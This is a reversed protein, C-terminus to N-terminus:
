RRKWAGKAGAALRLVALHRMAANSVPTVASQESFSGLGVQNSDTEVFVATSSDVMYSILNFSSSTVQGRGSNSSDAAYSASFRKDGNLSGQDNYDVLGTFTGSNNTFEAIDDEEFGSANSGTLNLGYGQGSALAPAPTSQPYAVGSTIGSGDIEMLQLGGASPYAAFTTTSALSGNNFGTLAVTTRGNTLTTTYLGSFSIQTTVNGADNIDEASTSSVGGSGDTVLFGGAVFPVPSTGRYDLGALTFVNTGAPVSSLQPFADGALFAKGDTEIFKLHSADVPFVDLTMTGLTTQTVMQATGPAGAAGVTVTGSLSLSAFATSSDNFDQIGSSMTGSADLTFGALTSLPNGSSDVGSLNAAYPGALAAQTVTAQLDLTGSGTGNGDYETILGHESSSLVFDFTFTNSGAQLTLGGGNRFGGRGDVGVSYIGSSVTTPPLQGTAAGNAEITGGTIHGAGDAVFTGAMTLFAGATSDSGTVSFVYTGNLNKDSFAGSPPPVVKNSSSGCGVLFALSLVAIAPLLLRNRLSMFDGQRVIM